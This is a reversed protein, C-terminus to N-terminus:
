DRSGLYLHFRSGVGYLQGRVMCVAIHRCEVDYMCVTMIFLHVCM